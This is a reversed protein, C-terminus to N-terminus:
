KWYDRLRSFTEKAQEKGDVGIVISSIQKINKIFSISKELNFEETSTLIKYATITKTSKKIEKLASDFNPFVYSRNVCLWSGGVDIKEATPLALGGGECMLLPIIGAKRAHQIEKEIIDVRKHLILSSIGLNGVLGFDCFDKFKDLESVYEKDDLRFQKIEKSSFFENSIDNFWNCNNRMKLNIKSAAFNSLKKMNKMSWLLEDNIYYHSNWHHNSICVIEPHEKKFKKLVKILITHPSMSFRRVGYSYATELTQRYSTEREKESNYQKCKKFWGTFHDEGMIVTPYKKNEIKIFPFAKM